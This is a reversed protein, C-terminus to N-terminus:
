VANTDVSVVYVFLIADLVLSSTSFVHEMQKSSKSSFKPSSLKPFSLDDISSTHPWRYWSPQKSSYRRCRNPCPCVSKLHGKHRVTNATLIGSTDGSTSTSTSANSLSLISIDKTINSKIRATTAISAMAKQAM